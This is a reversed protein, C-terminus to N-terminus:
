GASEAGGGVTRGASETLGASSFVEAGCRGQAKVGGKGSSVAKATLPLHFCKTGSTGSGGLADESQRSRGRRTDIRRRKERGSGSRRAWGAARAEQRFRSVREPDGAFEPPLIKIAVKRDLRTDHAEYVTGMGGAGIPKGVVYPGLSTGGISASAEVIRNVTVQAATQALFATPARQEAALLALVRQRLDNDAGCAADLFSQRRDEPLDIARDFLEAARQHRAAASPPTSDEPTV